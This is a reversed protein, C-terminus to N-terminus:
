LLGQCIGQDLQITAGTLSSAHVSALYAVLAGLEMPPQFQGSPLSRTSEAEITEISVGKRQADATMLEVARDTRFAGPCVNNITVNDRILEKALCKALAVVGTRFVTSLTLGPSPQKVAVSTINIVRGWRASVMPPIALRYLDIVYGLMSTYAADWDSRELQFFTGPKPGGSNVVLIDIKGFASRAAEMVRDAEGNKALDAPVEAVAVGHAARLSAAASALVDPNRACMVIPCGAAALHEACARGLGKSAGCVLAVKGEIGLNM